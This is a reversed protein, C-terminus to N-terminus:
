FNRQAAPNRLLVTTTYVRRYFRDNFPGFTLDGLQYTKSNTHLVGQEVSRALVYIKATVVNSLEAATPQSNYYDVVSDVGSDIGFMIHVYEIGPAIGGTDTNMVSGNLTKRYLTPIGDGDDMFHDEIYYINVLYRWDELGAAVGASSDYNMLMGTDGNTRLFIDGDDGSDARAARLGAM